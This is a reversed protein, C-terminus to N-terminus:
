GPPSYDINVVVQHSTTAAALSTGNRADAAVFAVTAWTGAKM